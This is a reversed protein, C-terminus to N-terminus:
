AKQLLYLFGQSRGSSNNLCKIFGSQIEMRNFTTKLLFATTYFDSGSNTLHRHLIRRRIFKAKSINRLISIIYITMTFRHNGGIWVLMAAEKQRTGYLAAIVPQQTSIVTNRTHGDGWSEFTHNVPLVFRSVATTENEFESLSVVLGCKQLADKYRIDEPLSYVPNVDLHIVAAVQNRDLKGPLITL